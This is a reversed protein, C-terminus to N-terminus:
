RLALIGDLIEQADLDTAWKQWVPELAERFADQDLETFTLGAERIADIATTQVELFTAREYEAAETIAQSFVDREADNLSEWFARSVIVPRPEALFAAEPSTTYSVIEYLHMSNVSGWDLTAGEVVGTQVGTYVEGYPMPTPNAGLAALADALAPNEIARLKLGHMDAPTTIARDVTQVASDGTSFWAVVEYGGQEEIRDALQEAVPSDIIRQMHEQGGIMFPLELLNMIQAQTALAGAGVGIHVSGELISENIDRENGLQGGPYVTVTMAGDSLEELREKFKLAGAQYPFTEATIHAFVINHERIEGSDDGPETGGDVRSCGTAVIAVAAALATLRLIRRSSIGM